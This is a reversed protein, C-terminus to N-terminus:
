QICKLMKFTEQLISGQDRSKEVVIDRLQVFSDVNLNTIQLGVGNEERRVVRASVKISSLDSHYVNVRVSVDLPLEYETKLYVGRLSLNGTTCIAVQNGYSISAGVSYNVRTFDRGNM